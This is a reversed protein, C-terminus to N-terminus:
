DELQESVPANTVITALWKSQKADEAGATLKAHVGKTLGAEDLHAYLNEVTEWSKILASATKEGIGAVGSINDSSDGMLAKLDILHIPAFGYEETFRAPTYYIAERNTALRVTVHENILQLNDRDGTLLTCDVGQETCIRSLTGLVDDAEFGECELITVGMAAMLEKVLPLQMALEEPMGKRNAKYTAVAKHRFTPSKLDFAIAVADPAIESIAKLYINVFGFIANTFVGKRNTLPKIGYYARNLISNGDIAMLKM